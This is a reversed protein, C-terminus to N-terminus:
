AHAPSTKEFHLLVHDGVRNFPPWPALWADLRTVASRVSKPLSLWRPELHPPPLAVGIGEVAVLSLDAGLATRVDAIRHYFTPVEVGAVSVTVPSPGRRRTALDPRRTALFYLAELVCTRAMLGLMVIGGPRVYRKALAGLPALDKVCNLAGFNSIIGDFGQPEALADLFPALEQLGCPLVTARDECRAHAVRRLSRSVMEESPDCAVVRVGNSALFCTDLGTGCGIEIVRAGRGFRRAFAQHTRARLLQFIEGGVLSDYESALRDFALTAAPRGVSSAV